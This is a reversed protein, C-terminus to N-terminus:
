RCIGNLLKPGAVRARCQGLGRGLGLTAALAFAFDLAFGLDLRFSVSTLLDIGRSFFSFFYPVSFGLFGFFPFASFFGLCAIRVTHATVLRSPVPHRLLLAPCRLQAGAVHRAIHRAARARECAQVGHQTMEPVLVMHQVGPHAFVQFCRRLVGVGHRTGVREEVAHAAASM